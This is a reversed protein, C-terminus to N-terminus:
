EKFQGKRVGFRSGLFEYHKTNVQVFHKHNFLCSSFLRVFKFFKTQANNIDFDTVYNSTIKYVLRFIIGDCNRLQM